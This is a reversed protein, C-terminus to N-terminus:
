QLHFTVLNSKNMVFNIFETISYAKNPTPYKYFQIIKSPYQKEYYKRLFCLAQNNNTFSHIGKIAPVLSEFLYTNHNQHFLLTTHTITLQKDCIFYSNCQINNKNFYYRSLEIYDWCHGIQTLALTDHIQLRYNSQFSPCEVDEYSYIRGFRDVYGYKIYTDIYNYYERISFNLFNPYKVLKKM